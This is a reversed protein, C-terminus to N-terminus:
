LIGRKAEAVKDEVTELQARLSPDLDATTLTQGNVIVLPAPPAPPKNPTAKPTATPQAAVPSPPPTVATAPKRKITGRQTKQAISVSTFLLLLVLPGIAIKM